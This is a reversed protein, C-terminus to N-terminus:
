QTLAFRVFIGTWILDVVLPVGSSTSMHLTQWLLSLFINPKVSGGELRRNRMESSEEAMAYWDSSTKFFSSWILNRVRELCFRFILLNHFGFGTPVRLIFTVHCKMMYPVDLIYVKDRTTHDLAGRLLRPSWLVKLLRSAHSYLGFYTFEIEQIYVMFKKGWIEVNHQLTEGFLFRYFYYYYCCCCYNSYFCVPSYYEIDVDVNVM